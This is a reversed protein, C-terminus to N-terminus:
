REITPRDLDAGERELFPAIDSELDLAGAVERIRAIVSAPGGMEVVREFPGLPHAAGLQLALDITDRSAVGDEMARYAEDVVGLLIRDRILEIPAARGAPSILDAVPRPGLRRGEEYDYFGSGTKRGLSGDAVLQEQIGSPRLRAPRGLGEWIAGAAALNVDIGVLDMLEFPGMPFGADRIVQDITDVSAIGAELSRLAALTFPRNVRNVIFGPLDACRVATKGWREVLATARTVISEAVIPPAVVEVLPMRAVPNFFHLGLVREPHATASAIAAVSIASTNTALIADPAAAADLAGFITRKLELDELAAEIVVEAEAGIADLSHADRLRAMRGAVWAEASDDDLELRAARRSLGDAIRERGRQIALEDVDYLLVEHVNELALQAIGAGMTGAGVVGVIERGTRDEAVNLHDQLDRVAPPVGHV